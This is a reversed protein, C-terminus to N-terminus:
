RKELLAPATWKLAENNSLVPLHQRPSRTLPLRQWLRRLASFHLLKNQYFQVHHQSLLPLCRQNLSFSNLGVSKVKLTAKSPIIGTHEIGKHCASSSWHREQTYIVAINLNADRHDLFQRKLISLDSVNWKLHPEKHHWLTVLVCQKFRINGLTLWLSPLPFFHILFYSFPSWVTFSNLPQVLVRNLM